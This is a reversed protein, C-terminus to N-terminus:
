IFSYYPMQQPDLLVYRPLRDSTAKERDNIRESLAQLEAQLGTFLGAHASYPRTLQASCCCPCSQSTRQGSRGAAVVDDSQTFYYNPLRDPKQLLLRFTSALYMNNIFQTLKTTFTPIGGTLYQSM